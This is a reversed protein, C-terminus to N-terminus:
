QPRDLLMCVVCKARHKVHKWIPDTGTDDHVPKGTGFALMKSACPVIYQICASYSNIPLRPPLAAYSAAHDVFNRHFTEAVGLYLAANM